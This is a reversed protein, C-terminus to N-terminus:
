RVAQPCATETAPLRWRLCDGDCATEMAPPAARVKVDVVRTAKGSRPKRRLFGERQLRELFIRRIIGRGPEETELRKPPNVHATMKAATAKSWETASASSAM